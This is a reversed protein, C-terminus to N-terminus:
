EVNDCSKSNWECRCCVSSRQLLFCQQGFCQFHSFWLTKWRADFPIFIFSKWYWGFMRDFVRLRHRLMWNKHTRDINNRDTEQAQNPTIFYIYALCSVGKGRRREGHVAIVKPIISILCIYTSLLSKNYQFYALFMFVIHICEVKEWWLWRRTTRYYAWKRPFKRASETEHHNGSIAAPTAQLHSRRGRRCELKEGNSLM